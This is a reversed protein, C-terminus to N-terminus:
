GAWRGSTFAVTFIIMLPAVVCIYAESVRPRKLSWRALGIWLPWWLLTARPISTYWYSTGLAWLSLAMYTAEPWRRHWMLLSLVVLGVVMAALEAQFMLGYGTPHLHGFASDWTHLWADWPAHFERYWGREQAHKWALWDGTRMHLYWTYSLAPVAPLLLWPSRSWRRRGDRALLFEVVLAASVFLGSVRVTTCETALTAALPWNGRKASLWAPLACSLFLAETYGATLFVACPSLLLFLVAHKGMSSDDSHFQALRALALVAVAGAVFSILLGSVTWNGVVMHVARLLLPLGPFFAERNDGGAVSTASTDSFYGQEAIRRFFVWDWQTWRSILSPAVRSDGDGTFLWASCFASIWVGAKTLLYLRLM